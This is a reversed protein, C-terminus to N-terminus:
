ARPSKCVTQWPAVPHACCCRMILFSVLVAWCPACVCARHETSYCSGKCQVKFNFFDLLSFSKEPNVLDSLSVGFDARAALDANDFPNFGVQQAM